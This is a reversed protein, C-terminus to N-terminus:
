TVYCHKASFRSSPGELEVKETRKRKKEKHSICYSLTDEKFPHGLAYFKIHNRNLTKNTAANSLTHIEKQLNDRVQM